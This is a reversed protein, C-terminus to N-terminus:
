SRYGKNSSHSVYEISLYKSVSNGYIKEAFYDWVKLLAIRFVIKSILFIHQIDIVQLMCM